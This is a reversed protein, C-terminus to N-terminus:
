SDCGLCPLTYFLSLLGVLWGVSWGVILCVTAANTNGSVITPMISADVVRLGQLGQVRLKTDVVARPDSRAGMRCSGVPHYMTLTM